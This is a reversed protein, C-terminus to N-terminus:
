NPLAGLYFMSLGTQGIAKCLFTIWHYLERPIGDYGKANM